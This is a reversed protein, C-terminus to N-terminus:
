CLVKNNASGLKAAVNPIMNEEIDDVEHQALQPSDIVKGADEIILLLVSIIAKSKHLASDVVHVIRGVLMPSQSKNQLLDDM